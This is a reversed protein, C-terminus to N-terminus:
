GDENPPPPRVRRARRRDTWGRRKAVEWFAMTVTVALWVRVALSLHLWGPYTGWLRLSIAFLFSTAVAGNCRGFAWDLSTVRPIIAWKLAYFLAVYALVFVELAHLPDM